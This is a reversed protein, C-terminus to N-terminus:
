HDIGSLLNKHAIACYQRCTSGHVSGVSNAERGMYSRCGKCSIACQVKTKYIGARPFM